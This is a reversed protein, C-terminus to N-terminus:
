KLRQILVQFTISEVNIFLHFHSKM